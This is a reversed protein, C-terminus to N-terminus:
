LVSLAVKVVECGAFLGELIDISNGNRPSPFMNRKTTRMSFANATRLIDGINVGICQGRGRESVSSVYCLHLASGPVRYTAGFSVESAHFSITACYLSYFFNHHLPFHYLVLEFFATPQDLEETSGEKPPWCSAPRFLLIIAKMVLIRVSILLLSGKESRLSVALGIETGIERPFALSTIITGSIPILMMM